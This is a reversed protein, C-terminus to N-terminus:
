SKTTISNHLLCTSVVVVNSSHKDSFKFPRTQHQNFAAPLHVYLALRTNQSRPKLPDNVKESIITERDSISNYVDNQKM